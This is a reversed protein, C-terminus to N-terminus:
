HHKVRRQGRRCGQAGGAVRMDLPSLFLRGEGESRETHPIQVGGMGVILYQCGGGWATIDSRRDQINLERTKM